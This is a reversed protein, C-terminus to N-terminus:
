HGEIERRFKAAQLELAQIQSKLEAIEKDITALTEADQKQAQKISEILLPKVITEKGHLCGQLLDKREEIVRLCGSAAQKEPNSFDQPNRNM